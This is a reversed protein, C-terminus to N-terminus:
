GNIIEIDILKAAIDHAYRNAEDLLQHYEFERAQESRTGSCYTFYKYYRKDSEFQFTALITM